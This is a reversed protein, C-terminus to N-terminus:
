LRYISSIGYKMRPKISGKDKAARAPDLETSEDPLPETLRREEKEEFAKEFEAYPKEINIYGEITLLAHHLSNYDKSQQITGELSAHINGGQVSEREVIGKRALHRFLRSQAEYVQDGYNEKAFAVIKNKRDMLVIDIDDHDFIMIDGALNRRANLKIEVDENIASGGVKIEITNKADVGIKLNIAM